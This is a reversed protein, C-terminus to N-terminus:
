EVCLFIITNSPKTEVLTSLPQHTATVKYEISVGNTQLIGEIITITSDIYEFTSGSISTLYQWGGSAEKRYIKYEIVNSIDPHKGWIIKPHVNSKGKFVSKDWNIINLCGGQSLELYGDGTIFSSISAFTVTDTLTYYKGSRIQIVKGSDITLNDILTINEKITDNYALSGGYKLVPLLSYLNADGNNLTNIFTIKSNVATLTVSTTDVYNTLQWNTYNNFNKLKIFYKNENSYYRNLVMFYKKEVDLPENFIGIDIGYENNSPNIPSVDEIYSYGDPNYDRINSGFSIGNSGAFQEVPALKRLTQGFLGKLRPSITDRLTFYKSTYIMNYIGSSISFDVIAHEVGGEGGNKVSHSQNVSISDQAFYTYLSIFKAGCLLALNTEYLLENSTINRQSAAWNSIEGCQISAGFNPSLEYAQKFNKICININAVRFDSCGCGYPDVYTPLNNKWPIDLFYSDQWVNIPDVRKKLEKWQSLHYTGWPNASNEWVGDWAGVLPYWVPRSYNSKSNLIKNVIRMPKFQDITHPEDAGNWGTIYSYFPSNAASNDQAYLKAITTPALKKLDRGANDSVIVKDISLLYNPKGLWIVKYQIYDRKLLGKYYATDADSYLSCQSNKLDYNLEFKQFENLSFMGKTITDQAVIHTCKFPWKPDVIPIDVISQTVQIICLPTDPHINNPVDLNRELKLYYDARYKTLYFDRKVKFIEMPSYVFQMFYPGRILEIGNYNAASKKLRIYTSFSEMISNDYYLEAESIEDTTGEAEWETYRANTYYNIYDVTDNNVRSMGPLLTFGRGERTFEQLLSDNIFEPTLIEVGAKAMSDISGEAGIATLWGTWVTSHIPIHDSNNIRNQQSYLNSFM